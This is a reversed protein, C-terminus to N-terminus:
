FDYSLSLCVNKHRGITEFQKLGHSYRFELSMLQNQYIPWEYQLGLIGGIDGRFVDNETSHLLYEAYSGILFGFRTQDTKNLKSFRLMFPVQFYTNAVDYISTDDNVRYKRQTLALEGIAHWWSTYEYIGSLALYSALSSSAHDYDVTSSNIGMKIFYNSDLIADIENSLLLGTFTFWVMFCLVIKKIM